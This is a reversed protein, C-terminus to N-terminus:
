RTVPVVEPPERRARLRMRVPPRTLSANTTAAAHPQMGPLVYQYIQMTFAIYALDLRESILKNPVGRLSAAAALGPRPDPPHAAPNADFMCRQTLEDPGADHAPGPEIDWTTATRSPLM